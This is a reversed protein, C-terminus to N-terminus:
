GSRGSNIVRLVNTLTSPSNPSSSAAETILDLSPHSNIMGSSSPPKNCDTSISLHIVPSYGSSESKRLSETVVSEAKCSAKSSYPRGAAHVHSGRSGIERINAYGTPGCLSTLIDKEKMAAVADSLSVRYLAGRGQDHILPFDLDERRGCM